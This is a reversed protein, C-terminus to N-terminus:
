TAGTVERLGILECFKQFLVQKAQVDSVYCAANIIMVLAHQDDSMEDLHPLRRTLFWTDSTM